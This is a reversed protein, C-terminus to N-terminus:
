AKLTEIFLGTLRKIAPATRSFDGDLGMERKIGRVSTLLIFILMEQEEAKIKRIEGTKMGASLINQLLDAEMKMLRKHLTYKARSHDSIEDADMGAEMAAYFPSREKSTKIKSLCFAKLKDEVSDAQDVTVTIEAIIERIITDMVADFVEERNKYYYYLSSRSKGVSRAIDDMTVKRLGYKQFLLLAAQLIQKQTIDEKAVPVVTTM